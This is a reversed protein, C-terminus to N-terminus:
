RQRVREVRHRRKPAVPALSPPSLPFNLACDSLAVVRYPSCLSYTASASTTPPDTTPEKERRRESVLLLVCARDEGEVM